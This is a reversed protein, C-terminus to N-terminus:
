ARCSGGLHFGFTGVAASVHLELHPQADSFGPTVWVDDSIETLGADGLDNASLTGSWRVRVSSGAPACVELTGANLSLNGSRDGAPLDLSATGANVTVNVDGLGSANALGLWFTGGNVTMNTSSLSAGALDASGRGANLTLGLGLTPTTPVGVQWSAQGADQLFGGDTPGEISVTSGSTEVRPGRGGADTGSISWEAGPASTMALTGCNMTVNLQGPGAYTGRQTAFATGPRDDTCGGVLSVGSFGAALAGGGMVGLTIATIAGGLWEIPTRRLILGVGWGILLVPWLTPWQRVLAVDLWGARVALPIAGVLIFFAGWGLYRRDIHM